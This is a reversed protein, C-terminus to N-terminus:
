GTSCPLQEAQRYAALLLTYALNNIDESTLGFHVLWPQSLQLREVLFYECAKVDHRSRAELEKIRAYDDDDFAALAAEIRGHEQVSLPGFCGTADLAQLYRLEVRCRSAMLAPESFYRGLQALREHYRGDLPSIATWAPLGGPHAPTAPPTRGTTM